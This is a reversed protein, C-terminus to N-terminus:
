VQPGRGRRREPHVCLLTQTAQHQEDASREHAASNCENSEESGCTTPWRDGTEEKGRGDEKDKRTKKPLFHPLPEITLGYLARRACFIQQSLLLSIGLSPLSALLLLLLHLPPPPSHLPM